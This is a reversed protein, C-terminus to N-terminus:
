SLVELFFGDWEFDGLCRALYGECGGVVLITSHIWAFTLRQHIM